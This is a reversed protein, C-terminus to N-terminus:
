AANIKEVLDKAFGAVGRAKTLFDSANTLFDTAATMEAARNVLLKTSAKLLTLAQEFEPSSLAKTVAAHRVIAIRDRLTEILVDAGIVGAKRCEIAVDIAEELADVCNDRAARIETITSM